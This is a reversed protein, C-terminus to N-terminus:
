LGTGALLADWNIHSTHLHEDGEEFTDVAVDTPLETRLAVLDDPVKHLHVYQVLTEQAHTLESAPLWRAEWLPLGKYSVLYEWVDQHQRHKLISDVELYTTDAIVVPEVPLAPPHVTPELVAPKVLSVHFVDHVKMSAHLELQVAVDNIVKTISFPGIWKPKLKKGLASQAFTLNATSLMVRQGVEFQYPRRHKNAQAVMHDQAKQLNQRAEVVADHMSKLMDCVAQVSSDCRTGLVHPLNPEVGFMLYYPSYGTASSVSSNIALAVDPLHDVWTHPAKQAYCRLVQQMLRNMRETQGDSQPHFATSMSLKSGLASFLESWFKSTFKPDRDSIIYEPVASFPMISAHFLHAIDVATADKKTPLLIVFKTLKEVVVLITDHGGATPPLEVVFDLTLYQWKKDPIPLPHLLGYPAATAAKNSQCTLCSKCYRKVDGAMGKWKYHSALKRLTGHFGFHGGLASDHVEHLLLGRLEANNPVMIRHKHLRGHPRTQYLVGEVAFYDACDGAEVQQLLATLQEDNLTAEAIQRVLPSVVRTMAGLRGVDPAFQEIEAASTVEEIRDPPLRSLADSVLNAKGKVYVLQLDLAQLLDMMRAQRDNKHMSAQSFFHSLAQHDSYVVTHQNHVYHHWHQLTLVIALMERDYIGYRQETPTFKKSYFAVPHMKGDHEQELVGSGSHSSADTHIHNVKNPDFVKLVPAHCMAYRLNEFAQQQEDGWASLFSSESARTLDTLPSAIEAYRHIFNRYWGCFGLFRQLESINTPVPWEAVARVHEPNVSIGDAGVHYGLFKMHEAAFQCKSPKAYVKQDRLVQLALRLHEAHEEINKSYLLIDDVYIIVFKDLYPQFIHHMLAMFTSPANCTGMPMVLWEFLGYRTTFATRHIHDPNMRVQWYGSECDLKSFVKAGHLRDILQDITPLPYHSKITRQNTLRYDCVLRYSGDPKKVLLAPAAYSSQSVRILGEDLLKTLIEHLATLETESMRYPSRHPADQDTEVEINHQIEREPPLGKPRAFVDDFERLVQDIAPEGTLKVGNATSGHDEQDGLQKGLLEARQYLQGLQLHRKGDGYKIYLVFYENGPNRFLKNLKGRRCAKVTPQKGDLTFAYARAGSPAKKVQAEHAPVVCDHVLGHVLCDPVCHMRQASFAFTKASWDVVPNFATLWQQGLVMDESLGDVVAFRVHMTWRVNPLKLTLMPLFYGVTEVAGNTALCVQWPEGVIAVPCLGSAQCFRRSVYCFDAGSDVLATVQKGKVRCPLHLLSSGSSGPAGNGWGFQQLHGRALYSLLAVCAARVCPVALWSGLGASVVMSVCWVIILAIGAAFAYALPSGVYDARLPKRSKGESSSGGGSGTAESACSGAKTPGASSASGAPRSGITNLHARLHPPRCAGESTSVGRKKSLGAGKKAGGVKAKIKQTAVAKPVDPILVDNIAFVCSTSLIDFPNPDAEAVWCPAAEKM